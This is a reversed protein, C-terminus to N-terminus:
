LVGAYNEIEFYSAIMKTKCNEYWRRSNAVIVGNDVSFSDRPLGAINWAQIKIPEGLTKTFSYDSSCPIHKEQFCNTSFEMKLSIILEVEALM